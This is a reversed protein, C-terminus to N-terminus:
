PLPRAPWLPHPRSRRYRRELLALTSTTRRDYVAAVFSELRTIRPVCGNQSHLGADQGSMASFKDQLGRGVVAAVSIRARAFGRTTRRLQLQRVFHRIETPRAAAQYRNEM